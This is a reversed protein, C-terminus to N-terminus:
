LAQAALQWLQKRCRRDGGQIMRSVEKAIAAFRKQNAIEAPTRKHRKRNPCRQVIQQCRYMRFYYGDRRCLCGRLCEIPIILDVKM